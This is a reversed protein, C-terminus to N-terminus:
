LLVSSFFCLLFCTQWASFVRSLILWIVVMIKVFKRFNYMYINCQYLLVRLAVIKHTADLFVVVVVGFLLSLLVLCHRATIVM